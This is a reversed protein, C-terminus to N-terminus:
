FNMADFRRDDGLLAISVRNPVCATTDGSSDLWGARRCLKQTCPSEVIRARHDRIEIVTNGLPGPIVLRQQQWAPHDAHSHDGQTVRLFHAADRTYVNVGLAIVLTIGALLIVIDGRRIM